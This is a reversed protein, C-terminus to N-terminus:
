YNWIIEKLQHLFVTKNNTIVSNAQPLWVFFLKVWASFITILVSASLVVSVDCGKTSPTLLVLKYKGNSFPFRTPITALWVESIVKKCRATTSSLVIPLM